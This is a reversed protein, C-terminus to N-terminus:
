IMAKVLSILPALVAQPIPIRSAYKPDEVSAVLWNLYIRNAVFYKKMVGAPTDVSISGDLNVSKVEGNSLKKIMPEMAKVVLGPLGRFDKDHKLLVKKINDTVFGWICSSGHKSKLEDFGRMISRLNGFSAVLKYMDNSIQKRVAIGGIPANPNKDDPPDGIFTWNDARWEFADRTFAAGTAKTYSNAFEQYLMDQEPDSLDRIYFEKEKIIDPEAKPACNVQYDFIDGVASVIKGLDRQVPDNSDGLYGAADMLDDNVQQFNGESGGTWEKLPKSASLDERLLNDISPIGIERFLIAPTDRTFSDQLSGDDDDWDDTDADIDDQTIGVQRKNKRVSPNLLVPKPGLGRKYKMEASTLALFDKMYDGSKIGNILSLIDNYKPTKNDSGPILLVRGDIAFQQNKLMFVPKGKFEWKANKGWVFNDLYLIGNEYVGEFNGERYNGGKFIGNFVNNKNCVNGGIVSTIKDWVDFFVTGTRLEGKIVMIKTNDVEIVPDDKWTIKSGANFLWPYAAKFDAFGLHVSKAGRWNDQIIFNVVKFPLKHKIADALTAADDVGAIGGQQSAQIGSKLNALFVDPSEDGIKYIQGNYKVSCTLSKELIRKAKPGWTVKGDFDILGGRYVGNFLGRKFLGGVMVGAFTDGEFTGSRFIPMDGTSVATARGITKLENIVEDPTGFYHVNCTGKLWNGGFIYDQKNQGFAVDLGKFQNMASMTWPFDKKVFNVAATEKINFLDQIYVEDFSNQGRPVGAAALFDKIAGQLGTASVNDGVLSWPVVFARPDTPRQWDMICYQLPKVQPLADKKIFLVNGDHNGSFAIGIVKKHHYLDKVVDNGKCSYYDQQLDYPMQPTGPKSTAMKKIIDQYKGHSNWLAEWIYYARDASLKPYKFTQELDDSLVEIMKPMNSVTFLGYKVCQDVLSYSGGYMKKAVRYDFILIGKSPTRYKIIANGYSGMSGNGKAGFQSLWDGTSYLGVGYMAGSGPKFGSKIINEVTDILEQKDRSSGTRHYSDIYSSGYGEGVVGEQLQTYDQRM